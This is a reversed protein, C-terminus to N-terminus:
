TLGVSGAWKVFLEPWIAVPKGAAKRLGFGHGGHTFLHTEVFVGSAKLAARFELSNEVSVSADDEAHLLFCPPTEATVNNQSSYEHELAPSPDDGLLNRRSGQHAVPASMSVVPYIHAAALPRASLGDASDVAVYTQADYRTALSTSVHGGASFGMAVVRTAEIDFAAARSRILRMARQADSLSVDPGADWGDGPLRYFLVFVTYGRASLWRGIEYGEKDIVVRQYGGGPMVLVAAGNPSVPRFVHLHPNTIGTVARDRLRADTSREVITERPPDDAAGPAGNPWLELVDDPSSPETAPLTNARTALGTSLAALLVTRRNVKGNM